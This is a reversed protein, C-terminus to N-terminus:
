PNRLTIYFRDQHVASSCPKCDSTTYLAVPFRAQAERLAYPLTSPLAAEQVSPEAPSPRKSAPASNAPEPPAPRGPPAARDSYTARGDVGVSRYITQAAAEHGLGPAMAVVLSTALACYLRFM